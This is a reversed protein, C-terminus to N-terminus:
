GINLTKGKREAVQATTPTERTVWVVGLTGLALAGLLGNVLLQHRM